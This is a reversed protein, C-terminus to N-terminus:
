ANWYYGVLGGSLFKYCLKAGPQHSVMEEARHDDEGLRVEVDDRSLFLTCGIGGGNGAGLKSVRLYYFHELLDSRLNFCSAQLEDDQLLM